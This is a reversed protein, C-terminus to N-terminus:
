RGAATRVEGPAIALARSKECIRAGAAEAAAALGLAYNLPHLHGAGADAIAGHYRRSGLREELAAKDLLEARRM